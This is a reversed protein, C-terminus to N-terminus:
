VGRPKKLHVSLIADIVYDMNHPNLGAINIRGNPPLYIGKEERLKLTQEQDFGLLSFFGKQRELYSFDQTGKMMLGSALTERMADMRSRMNGLEELWDKKLQPDGLIKAVIRGGHLPPTSYITRIIRKIQSAAKSKTEAHHTVFALLGVREGYLGFNKSYSAALLMEHGQSLFYRVAKADEDVNKSFGQYALDFFPFVGLKLIVDSLEKWQDMQLDAGTPNHCCAHLMIISKPPMKKVFTLLAAFDVRHNKYDYYPYREINLNASAFIPQHNPWSPDPLYLNKFSSLNLFNGAIKLACTGGVTQCAFLNEQGETDAFILKLTQKVFEPDGDIPLYEKNLDQKLIEKEVAKVTELVYPKGDATKYSGIGLNVKEKRSDRAFLIPLILIPDDPALSISEFFASKEKLNTM